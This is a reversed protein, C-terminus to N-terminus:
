QATQQRFAPGTGQRSPGPAFLFHPAESDFVILFRLLSVTTSSVLHLGGEGWAWSALEAKILRGPRAQGAQGM